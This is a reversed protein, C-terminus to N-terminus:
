YDLELEGNMEEDREEVLKQMENKIVYPLDELSKYPKIGRHSLDFHPKTGEKAILLVNSGELGYGHAFGVEYYVNPREHTLDAIIFESHKIQDIIDDTVPYSGSLASVINAELDLSKCESKIINYVDKWEPYVDEDMPMVVFVSNEVVEIEDEVNESTALKINNLGLTFNLIHRLEKSTKQLHERGSKNSNSVLKKFYSEQFDNIKKENPFDGKIENILKNLENEIDELDSHSYGGRKSLQLLPADIEDLQEFYNHFYYEFEEKNM